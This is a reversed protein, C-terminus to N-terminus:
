LGPLLTCSMRGFDSSQTRLRQLIILLHRTIYLSVKRLENAITIVFNFWYAWGLAFAAAPDVFKGTWQVFASPLPYMVAMEGTSHAVSWIM